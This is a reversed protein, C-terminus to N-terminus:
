EVKMCPRFTAPMSILRFISASIATLSAAAKVWSVSIALLAQNITGDRLPLLTGWPPAAKRKQWFLLGAGAPATEVPSAGGMRKKVAGFLFGELPAERAGAPCNVKQAAGPPLSFAGARPKRRAAPTKRAPASSIPPTEQRRAGTKPLLFLGQGRALDTLFHPTTAFLVIRKM